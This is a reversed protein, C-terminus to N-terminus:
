RRGGSAPSSTRRAPVAPQPDRPRRAGQHRVIEPVVHAATPFDKPLTPFIVKAKGGGRAGRRGVGAHTADFYLVAVQRGSGLPQPYTEIGDGTSVQRPTGGAVPVAWIHRREIDKANTCYYLTKGDRSLTASTADEILGDTTTLLVPSRPRAM